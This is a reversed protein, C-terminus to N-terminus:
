GEVDLLAGHNSPQTFRQLYKTAEQNTLIERLVADRHQQLRLKVQLGQLSASHLQQELDAAIQGAHNSLAIIAHERAKLLDELNGSGTQVAELVAETSEVVAAALARVDPNTM